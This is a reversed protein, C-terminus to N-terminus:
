LHFGTGTGIIGPWEYSACASSYQVRLIGADIGAQPWMRVLIKMSLAAAIIVAIMSTEM